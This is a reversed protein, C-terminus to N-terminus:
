NGDKKVLLSNLKQMMQDRVFQKLNNHRTPDIPNLYHLRLPRCSMTLGRIWGKPCLFGELLVPVIVTQTKIALDFVGSQFEALESWHAQEETKKGEPFILLSSGSSLASQCQDMFGQYGSGHQVPVYNSSKMIIDPYSGAPKRPLAVIRLNPQDIVALCFEDFPRSHALHNIVFIVPGKYIRANDIEVNFLSRIWKRSYKKWYFGATEPNRCVHGAIAYLGVYFAAHRWFILVLFAGLTILLWSRTFCGYAFCFLGFVAAIIGSVLSVILHM